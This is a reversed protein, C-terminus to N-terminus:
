LFKLAGQPVKFKRLNVSQHYDYNFISVESFVYARKVHM